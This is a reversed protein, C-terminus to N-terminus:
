KTVAKNYLRRRLLKSLQKMCKGCLRWMKDSTNRVCHTRMGWSKYLQIFWDDLGLRKNLKKKSWRPAAVCRCVNENRVHWRMRVCGCLVLHLLFAVHACLIMMNTISETQTLHKSVPSNLISHKNTHKNLQKLPEHTLTGDLSHSARHWVFLWVFLLEYGCHVDNVNAQLPASVCDIRYVKHWIGKNENHCVVAISDSTDVDCHSYTKTYVTVKTPLSTLHECETCMRKNSCFAWWYLFLQIKRCFARNPVSFKFYKNIATESQDVALWLTRIFHM